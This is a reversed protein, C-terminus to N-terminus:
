FLKELNIKAKARKKKKKFQAGEQESVADVMYHLAVKVCIEHRWSKNKQILTEKINM